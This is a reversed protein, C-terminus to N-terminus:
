EEKISVFRFDLMGTLQPQYEVRKALGFPRILQLPSLALCKEYIMTELAWSQEEQEKLDLIATMREFLADFEPDRVISYPGKSHIMITYPFYVHATPDVYHVMLIDGDWPPLTPDLNPRVIEQYQREQSVFYPETEIGAQLLQTAIIKGFDKIEERVQMKIKIGKSYGAEALLQRAKKPDYPYGAIKSHHGFQGPMTFTNLAAANGKAGYRILAKKDLSYAAALRLRRDQFPSKQSNFILSIGYFNKAKVIKTHPNKAVKLTNLGSLDTVMDVEGSLLAELQRDLPLFRFVLRDVAPVGLMWYEKNAALEIRDGKAWHEFRFPGTGVPHQSFGAEGVEKFYRPPLIKVFMPLKNLLVGDKTKTRIRVAWDGAVDVKDITSLLSANPAPRKPDLQRELSFRVAQANFPEGNHFRVGRRLQFEVTFDDLRKWSEALAPAVKGDPTLRVLGDFIQNVVNDSSADFERHPDLSVPDTVDNCVVLDKAFSLSSFAILVVSFLFQM